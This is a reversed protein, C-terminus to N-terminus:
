ASARARISRAAKPVISAILIAMSALSVLVLPLFSRWAEFLGTAAKTRPAPFQMYQYGKDNFRVEAGEGDRVVWASSWDLTLEGSVKRGDRLLVEVGPAPHARLNWIAGYKVAPDLLFFLLGLAALHRWTM